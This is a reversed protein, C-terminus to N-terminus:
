ELENTGNECDVSESRKEAQKSPEDLGIGIARCIDPGVVLVMM